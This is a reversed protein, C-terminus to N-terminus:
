TFGQRSKIPQARGAAPCHKVKNSFREIWTLKGMNQVASARLPM